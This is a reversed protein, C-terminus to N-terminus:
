STGKSITFQWFRQKGEKRIAKNVGILYDYCIFCLDKSIGLETPEKGISTLYNVVMVEAHCDLQQTTKSAKEYEAVGGGMLETLMNEKIPLSTEKSRVYASSLIQVHDPSLAKNQQPQPPIYSLM